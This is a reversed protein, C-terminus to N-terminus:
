SRTTSGASSTATATSAADVLPSAGSVIVTEELQGVKLPIDVRATFGATLRIAERRVTQFGSLAYAVTYTGIPLPTLRYEGQADTVTVPLRPRPADAVPEIEIDPLAIDVVGQWARPDAM